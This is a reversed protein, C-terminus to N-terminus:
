FEIREMRSNLEAEKKRQGNQSDRLAAPKIESYVVLKRAGIKQLLCPLMASEGQKVIVPASFSYEFVKVAWHLIPPFKM